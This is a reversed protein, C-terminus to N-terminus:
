PTLILGSQPPIETVGPTLPAGRLDMTGDCAASSCVGSIPGGSLTLAHGYSQRFWRVSTLQPSTTANVLAACGGGSITAGRDYCNAFERLYVGNPHRVNDLGCTGPVLLDKAGGVDDGSGPGCGSGNGRGGYRFTEMTKLPNRFFLQEEPYFGVMTKRSNSFNAWDVSKSPDFALMFAAFYVLRSQQTADNTQTGDGEGLLFWKIPLTNNIVSTTNLFVRLNGLTFFRRPVYFPNEFTSGVVNGRTAYVSFLSTDQVVRAPPYNGGGGLSNTIVRIPPTTSGEANLLNGLARRLSADDPYEDSGQQANTGYYYDKLYIDTNDQFFMGNPALQRKLFNVWWRVPGPSNFNPYYFAVSPYGCDAASRTVKTEPSHVSSTHTYWSEDAAADFDVHDKCAHAALGAPPVHISTPNFYYVPACSFQSPPCDRDVAERRGLFGEAYTLYTQVATPGPDAGYNGGVYAYSPVHAPVAQDALSRNAFHAGLGLYLVCFAAFAAGSFFTRATRM